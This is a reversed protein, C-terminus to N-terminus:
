APAQKSSAFASKPHITAEGNLRMALRDVGLACGACKPMGRRVAAMFAPDEPYRTLGLAAREAAFKAFRREHEEYDTLETYTNALEVGGIYLEWREAVPPTGNRVAALAAFEAPYDKLIVPVDTPLSPEVEEVLVEEFRNAKLAADLTSEAFEAFAEAVTLVSWDSDLEVEGGDHLALSTSGITNEAVNALLERTFGILGDYDAGKEYWELMTFEEGHLRGRENKRFCPGLQFIKEAGESLLIKMQPEPSTRLFGGAVSFAEITPEPIPAPVVVPTITETFSKELFFARIAAAVENLNTKRTFM